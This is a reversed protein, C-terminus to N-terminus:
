LGRAYITGDINIYSVECYGGGPCTLEIAAGDPTSYTTPVTVTYDTSTSNSYIITQSKGANSSGTISCTSSTNSSVNVVSMSAGVESLTYTPKSAAKAWASVDSAPLTTPYSNCESFTGSASIYVPKTTSGLATVKTQYNSLKRTSGDTVEDLTYSPKTSAKAWASVDSAPLTSPIDSMTAVKNTSANYATNFVLADQKSNWTNKEGTTVLSLTTGGSAATESKLTGLDVGNASDGNTTTGITFKYTTNTTAFTEFTGKQTLAKTTTSGDFSTSTRAVKNSNSADTVVLKDGNAIAVDTTQLAGANTINGHTHSAPTRASSYPDSAPLALTHTGDYAQATTSLTLTSHEHKKSVADSVNTTTLGSDKITKGTTGDFSALNGDTSSAAGDVKGSIDQHSTIVTGLDVVGSTGKSAGNMKIGTITGTNKTFGWGSVTSEIVNTAGTAIGNLKTKDNASMLGAASTTAESYTTDTAAITVTRNTTDTTLTVNDGQIFTVDDAASQNATFDAATVAAADGVKTKVSFTGNNVTYTSNTDKIQQKTVTLGVIHGKADRQAKVGTVMSYLTNKAYAGETGDLNATIESSSDASPTYHNEVATVSADTFVADSPVSKGITFGSDKITKGSTGNFTAVHADTSSAPGTVAGDINAQIFDWNSVITSYNSSTAAATSDTNCILMDGIEVTIGNIKGATTVKYTEGKNAAPTLAGYSGTSGGAVTGKYVMADNVAIGNSVATWVAKSTPVTTDGSDASPATTTITKGSAKIVNGSAANTTTIVDAATWTAAGTVNRTISPTVTVDQATGGSPTFTFKNTGGAFTYTTNTDTAAITIKSNTADPTITVNDGAVIDVSSASSANATTSAVETGAGKVSFKANNVTPITPKNSLDNYSGSTAVTALGMDSKLTATTVIDSSTSGITKTLKKNTTDYAVNTVGGSVANDWGTIKESTITDLAAKNSHTHTNSVATAVDVGKITSTQIKNNSDDRIVVYDNGAAAAATDTLTGGNAINGHTHSTPTMSTPFDSVQSKTISINGFTASVNGNTQSLSTITKGAGGTGITGGDLANIANTVTSVTAAKNTSANYTGDFTYTTDTAAGSVVGTVHGAADMEIGTVVQVTTGTSGTAGTASKTASSDKTPSYHNSVTTVSQDTFVANSPVSSAITYGSDKVVKGTTGNFVAVHSNTSSSPGTVAGDINTQIFDWNAAITSYDSSTAATTNDTNCILMDGIEVAIGNIKGATTVKYTEGKGAAPTLAGYSGTSGGAITGKYVMADNAAIGNAIADWVAKSTPVTTDVSDGSPATTSISVGSNKAVKKNSYGVIIADTAFNGSSTVNNTISPTVTISQATGGSPTVTFKNTGGAFTYTTDTAAITIKNNSADPTVSVNDGAVIDVSSATSANATTSAVETGEGKISFKADNVIPITPFDSIQSKTISINGFTASVNGNTQSLSTITKGAGGTGITGGDLNNIANTISDKIVKASVFKGATSTGTNVESQTLTGPDIFLDELPIEIDTLASDSNFDILLVQKGVNDGTGNTIRVDSVMGDKVFDTASFESLVTNNNKLQIKQSASDYNITVNSTKLYGSATAQAEEAEDKESPTLQSVDIQGYKIINKIDNEAGTLDSLSDPVSISVEKNSSQNANFTGVSTNNRKITLKGNGVSPIDESVDNIADLLDQKDSLRNNEIQEVLTELGALDLYKISSNLESM